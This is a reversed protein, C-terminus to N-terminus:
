LGTMEIEKIVNKCFALAIHGFFIGCVSFNGKYTHMQIFVASYERAEVQSSVLLSKIVRQVSHKHFKPKSSSHLAVNVTFYQITEIFIRENLTAKHFIKDFKCNQQKCNYSEFYNQSRESYSLTVGM